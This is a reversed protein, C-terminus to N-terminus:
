SIIETEYGIWKLEEQLKQINSTDALSLSIVQTKHNAAVSTVIAKQSLAFEVTKECGGCSMKQSGVVLLKIDKLM